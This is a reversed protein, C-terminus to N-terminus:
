HFIFDTLNITGYYVSFSLSVKDVNGWRTAIINDSAISNIDVQVDITASLTQSAIKKLLIQAVDYNARLVVPIAIAGSADTFVGAGPIPPQATSLLLRLFPERSVQAVFTRNEDYIIVASVHSVLANFTKTSVECEGAKLLM